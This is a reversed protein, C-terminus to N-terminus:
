SRVLAGAPRDVGLALLALRWQKEAEALRETAERSRQLLVYSPKPTNALAFTIRSVKAAHRKVNSSWLMVRASKDDAPWLRDQIIGQYDTRRFQSSQLIAGSHLVVRHSDISRVRDLVWISGDVGSCERIVEANPQCWDPM